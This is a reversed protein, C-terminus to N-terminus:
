CRRRSSKRTSRELQNDCRLDGEPAAIELNLFVSMGINRERESRGTRCSCSPLSRLSGKDQSRGVRYLCLNQKQYMLVLSWGLEKGVTWEDNKQGINHAMKSYGVSLSRILSYPKSLIMAYSRTPSFLLFFFCSGQMKVLQFFLTKIILSPVSFHLLRKGYCEPFRPIETGCFLLFVFLM